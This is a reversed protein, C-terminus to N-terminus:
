FGCFGQRKIQRERTRTAQTWTRALQWGIGANNIVALLRAGRGATHEALRDTLNAAWRQIQRSNTEAVSSIATSNEWSHSSTRHLPRRPDSQQLSGPNRLCQDILHM